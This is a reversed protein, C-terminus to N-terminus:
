EKLKPFIVSLESMTLYNERPAMKLLYNFEEVVQDSIIYFANCINVLFSTYPFENREAAVTKQLIGPIVVVRKMFESEPFQKQLLYFEANPFAEVSCFRIEGTDLLNLFRVYALGKGLEEAWHRSCEVTLRVAGHESDVYQFKSTNSARMISQFYPHARFEDLIADLAAQDTGQIATRISEYQYFKFKLLSANQEVQLLMRHSIDELLQGDIPNNQVDVRRLSEFIGARDLDDCTALQEMDVVPFLDKDLIGSPTLRQCRVGRKLFEEAVMNLEQAIAFYHFYTFVSNGNVDPVQFVGYPPEKSDIENFNKNYARVPGHHKVEAVIGDDTYNFGSNSEHAWSHDGGAIYVTSSGLAEALGFCSIACSLWSERLRYENKTIHPNFSEKFFVGAFKDAVDIINTGSLAVLFTESCTQNSPFLHKMRLDTDLHVVFDPPCDHELCFPLSRAICIILCKKRLEKLYPGIKHLSPGALLILVPATVEASKLVDCLPYRLHLPLNKANVIERALYFSSQESRVGLKDPITFSRQPFLVFKAYIYALHRQIADIYKKEHEYTDPNIIISIGNVFLKVPLDKVVQMVKESAESFYLRRPRPLEQPPKIGLFFCLSDGDDVFEEIGVFTNFM